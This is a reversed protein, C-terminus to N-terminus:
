DPADTWIWARRDLGCHYRGSPRASNGVLDIVYSDGVLPAAAITFYRCGRWRSKPGKLFIRGLLSLACSNCKVYQLM